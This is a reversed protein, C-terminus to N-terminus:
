RRRVRAEPLIAKVIRKTSDRYAEDIFTKMVRSAILEPTFEYEGDALENLDDAIMQLKYYDSRSLGIVLSRSRLFPDIMDRIIGM